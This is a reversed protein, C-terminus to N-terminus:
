TSYGLRERIKEGCRICKDYAIEMAGLDKGCDPCEEQKDKEENM